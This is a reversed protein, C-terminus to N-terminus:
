KFLDNIENQIKKPSAQAKEEAKVQPKRCLAEVQVSETKELVRAYSVKPLVRVVEVLGIRREAAGLSEGTSPDKIEEGPNFLEFRDGVALVEGGRNLIVEDAGNLAAVKFPYITELTREAIARGLADSISNEPQNSDLDLGPLDSLKFAKALVIQRSTIEIIRLSAVGDAYPVDLNAIKKEGVRLGDVVGIVLYQANFKRAVQIARQIPDQALKSSDLRELEEDFSKDVVAFKRSQVLYTEASDRMKKGITVAPVVIGKIEAAAAVRFPMLALIKRSAPGSASTKIKAIVAVVEVTYKDGEETENKIDWWRLLGATARAFRSSVAQEVRRSKTGNFSKTEAELNLKVEASITSGQKSLAEELAKFVATERDLGRGSGQSELYEVEETSQFKPINVENRLVKAGPKADGVEAALCAAALFLTLGSSM